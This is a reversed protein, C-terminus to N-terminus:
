TTAVVCDGVGTTTNCKTCVGASCKSGSATCDLNRTCSKAKYTVSSNPCQSDLTCPLASYTTTTTTTFSETCYATGSCTTGPTCSTTPNNACYTHSTDQYELDYQSASNDIMLMLNPKVGAVVFPPTVCYDNMAAYVPMSQTMCLVALFFLLGRFFKSRSIM